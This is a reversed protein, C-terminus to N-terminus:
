RPAAKSARSPPGSTCSRRSWAAPRCKASVTSTRFVGGVGREGTMADHCTWDGAKQFVEASWFRSGEGMQLERVGIGERGGPRLVREGEFRGSRDPTEFQFGFAGDIVSGYPRMELTHEPAFVEDPRDNWFALTNSRARGDTTWSVLFQGGAFHVAHSVADVPVRFVCSARASAHDVAVARDDGYVTLVPWTCTVRLADHADFGELVEELAPWCLEEPLGSRLARALPGTLDLAALAEEVGELVMATPRDLLTTLEDM